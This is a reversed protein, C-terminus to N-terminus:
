IYKPLRLTFSSGKGLTSRVLLEGDQLTALRKSLALGLGTGGQQRTSTPQLQSFENFIEKLKEAPIGPGRDTVTIEVMEPGIEGYVNVVTGHDTFQVANKILNELIQQVQKPDANVKASILDTQISVSREQALPAIRNIAASLVEPLEFSSRKQDLTGSKLRTYDLMNNILSLLGEGALILRDLADNTFADYEKEGTHKNKIKLLRGFGLIVTLPTRLEHSILSIFESKATSSVEANIQAIKIDTVDFRVGVRDGDMTLRSIARIWRGNTLEIEIPEDSKHHRQLAEQIWAERDHQPVCFHGKDLGKRLIEEFTMGVKLIDKYGFLDSYNKNWHLLRDQKDYIVFGASLADIGKELREVAQRNRLQSVFRLHAVFILILTSIIIGVRTPTLLPLRGWGEVPTISVTWNQGYTQFNIEELSKSTTAKGTPFTVGALDFVLEYGHTRLARDQFFLLFPELEIAVSVIGIPEGRINRVVERIAIATRRQFDEFPHSLVPGFAELAAEIDGSSDSFNRYDVGILGLNPAVPYVQNIIFDAAYSISIVNIARSTDDSAPFSADFAIGRAIQEFTVTDLEPLVQAAATLRSLVLAKRTLRESIEQITQVAVLNANARQDADMRVRDRSDLLAGLVIGALLVLFIVPIEKRYLRFFDSATRM